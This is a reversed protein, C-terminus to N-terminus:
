QPRIPNRKFRIDYHSNKKIILRCLTPFTKTIYDASKYETDIDRHVSCGGKKTYLSTIISLKNYRLCDGYKLWYRISRYYDEKDRAERPIKIDKKNFLGFFGGCCNFLGYRLEPMTKQAITYKTPYTAWINSGTDCLERGARDIFEKLDIEKNNIDVVRAIDDDLSILYENEGFYETIFNRQKYLEEVGIIINLEQSFGASYLDYEAENAVFIYIKEAPIKQRELFAMTKKKLIDVRKFSPIVIKYDKIM